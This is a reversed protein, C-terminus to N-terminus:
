CPVHYSPPVLQGMVRRKGLILESMSLPFASNSLVSFLGGCSLKVCELFVMRRRLSVLINCFDVQLFNSHFTIFNEEVYFDDWGFRFFPIM